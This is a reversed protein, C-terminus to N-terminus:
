PCLEKLERLEKLEGLEGLEKLKGLEKLEGLEQTTIEDGWKYELIYLVNKSSKFKQIFLSSPRPNYM